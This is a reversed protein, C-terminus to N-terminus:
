KAVLKFLTGKTLNDTLEVGNVIALEEMRSAAVGNSQLFAQVTTNNNVTVVKIREPKRNLKSADTLKNFSKMTNMFNPYYTNFDPKKAIGTLNYIRGDYQILYVLAQLVDQPNAGQQPVQEGLIALAPLGNVTTQTRETANLGNRTLVQDAATNLNTGQELALIMLAKGDEPAMQVQAPTNQTQWNAPVNFFFKLEPHYFKSQEFYGQRPDEGYVLGDIMNLYAARNEKLSEAPIGKAAQFEKTYHGVKTFRDGPDPHTSLFSPIAGGDGSLRQLTRFFHAMHVSNYGIQTSYEVGLKDSESENDRSFKLFLLSAGQMAVDGYKRFDESAVMGGLIALQTLLQNSQQRASHRATIHGIEHGLVGAFEAENSFHALIGRTFYVFGGPVAFANVVPSDLIRFQYDLSPRHSIKGMEKGKENIFAQLKPDDYLGYMNVIEPDYQVGMAIEQSESMLMLERKGTVPNKVCGALVGAILLFSLISRM